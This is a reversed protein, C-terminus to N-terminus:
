QLGAHLTNTQKKQAPQKKANLKPIKEILAEFDAYIVFPAKMQKFLNQFKLINKGKEPMEIRTPTGNVGNYYKQHNVLIKETTFSILCMTCFHKKDGHKTQDYLLASLRKVFCYHTIEDECLLMLNIRKITKDKRSIRHVIVLDNEWGFVNIALNPNQKELKDLQKLPTPFIIGDWNIGDSSSYKSPRETHKEVPFLAASLAWKLCDNDKYQM